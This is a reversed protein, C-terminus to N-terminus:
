RAVVGLLDLGFSTYGYQASFELIFELVIKALEIVRALAGYGYQL